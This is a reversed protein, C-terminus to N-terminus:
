LFYLNKKNHIDEEKLENRDDPFKEAALFEVLSICDKRKKSLIHITMKNPIRKKFEELDFENDNIENQISNKM